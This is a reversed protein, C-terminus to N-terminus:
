NNTQIKSADHLNDIIPKYSAKKMTTGTPNIPAMRAVMEQELTYPFQNLATFQSSKKQESLGFNNLGFNGTAVYSRRILDFAVLLTLVALIPNSNSFMYVVVGFIVIKGIITDVINAIPQPTKYGMIIYIIFIIALLLEGMHEKQFLSSFSNM